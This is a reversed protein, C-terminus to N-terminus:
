DLLSAADILERTFAHQPAAFVRETDGQEVVRGHRMVAVRDSVRRVVALDHSIFVMALGDNRQLDLLLDLVGAQTTVDLASVPEDCVLVEPRAALARGIAVRQRQGGSLAAPRSRSLDADLGVRALLAAPSPAGDRRADRLIRGVTHRPDFSGLPDQPILRLRAGARTRVEGDDPRELGVLLRALTSKGSGSEGAVGLVEGDHVTVDVGGVAEITGGPAPYRRVLATGSLLEAGGAAAPGGPKPGRPAARLLTRTTPHDPSSLIRAADGQEVVRGHELVAIRDAVRAVAALDHSILILGTGEDRLRALLDLVRVATTADLATTPEDAVILPAGGVIASAILARQRMGGSLQGPRQRLRAPAETRASGGLPLGAADLADLVRARRDARRVGRIALAEGVEAGITRLPDLSQLADQLVLSVQRGRIARWSREPLRRVDDGGVQFADASVRAGERLSLGLVTRALVSKGAGSEGVIALCEGPAVELDVGSLAEHWAGRPSRLSVRLDRLRLLPATGTM